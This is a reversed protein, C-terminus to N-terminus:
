VLNQVPFCYLEAITAGTVHFVYDLSVIMEEWFAVSVGSHLQLSLSVQGTGPSNHRPVTFIVYSYQM